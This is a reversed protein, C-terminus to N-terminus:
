AAERGSMGTEADQSNQASEQGAGEDELPLEPEIQIPVGLALRTLYTSTDFGKRKLEETSAYQRGANFAAVNIGKERLGDRVSQAQANLTARKEDIKDLKESAERIYRTLEDQDEIEFQPRYPEITM